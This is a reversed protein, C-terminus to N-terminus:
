IGEAQGEIQSVGNPRLSANPIEKCVLMSNASSQITEAHVTDHVTHLVLEPRVVM